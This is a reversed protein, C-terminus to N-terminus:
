TEIMATAEIEVLAEDEVLGAVVVMTMAPFTTGMIKRYVAGVQKQKATYDRKDTIYWTLRTLDQTTGGAAELVTRINLLAQEMQGIFEDSTFKKEANWGIQGAIHLTAGTALVGNAYGKAPKWGEPYITKHRM